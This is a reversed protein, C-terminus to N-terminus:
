TPCRGSETFKAQKEPIKSLVYPVFAAQVEGKSFTSPSMGKVMGVSNLALDIGDLCITWIEETTFDEEGALEVIEFTFALAWRGTDSM